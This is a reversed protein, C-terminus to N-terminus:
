LSYSLLCQRLVCAATLDGVATALFISGQRAFACLQPQACQRRLQACACPVGCSAPAAPPSRPAAAHAAPPTRAAGSSPLMRLVSCMTRVAPALTAAAAVVAAAVDRECGRPAACPHWACGSRHASVDRCSYPWSFCNIPAGSIAPVRWHPLSSTFMYSFVEFRMAPAYVGHPLSECAFCLVTATDGSQFSSAYIEKRSPWPRLYLARHWPTDHLKVSRLNWSASGLTRLFNDRTSEDPFVFRLM